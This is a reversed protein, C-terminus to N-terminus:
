PRRFMPRGASKAPLLVTPVPPGEWDKWGNVVVMLAILCSFVAHPNRPPAPMLDPPAFTDSSRVGFKLCVKNFQAIRGLDVSMAKPLAAPKLAMALACLLKGNSLHEPRLEEASFKFTEKPPKPLLASLENGMSKSGKAIADELRYNVVDVLWEFFVAWRDGDTNPAERLGREPNAKNFVEEDTEYESSSSAEAAAAAEKAPAPAAQVPAPAPAPEPEPPTAEAAGEAQPLRRTPPRFKRVARKAGAQPPAAEEDGAAAKTPNGGSDRAEGGAPAAVATEVGARTAAAAAAETDSDLGPIPVAEEEERESDSDGELGPIAELRRAADRQVDGGGGSPVPTENPDDDSDLGPVVEEKGIAPVTGKTKTEEDGDTDSDLGPVQGQLAAKDDDSDSELGPVSRSEVKGQPTPGETDSELGPVVLQQEPSAPELVETDSELGPVVVMGETSECGKGALPTPSEPAPQAEHVEDKEESLSAQGIADGIALAAHEPPEQKVRQAEAEEAKRKAEEEKARQAV